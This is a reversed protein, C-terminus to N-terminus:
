VRQKQDRKYAGNFIHKYFDGFFKIEMYRNLLTM